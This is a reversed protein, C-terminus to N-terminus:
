SRRPKLAAPMLAANPNQAPQDHTHLYEDSFLVAPMYTIDQRTDDHPHQTDCHDTVEAADTKSM